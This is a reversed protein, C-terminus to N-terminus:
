APGRAAAVVATFPVELAAALRYLSTRAPRNHGHVWRSITAETAGVRQAVDASRLGLARKRALILDGLATTPNKRPLVAVLAAHEIQLVQALRRVHSPGPVRYGLEWSVVTNQVVGLQEAVAARTLRLTERRAGVFQGLAPWGSTDVVFPSECLAAVAPEAVGLFSALRGFFVVGPTSRGTEWGAFTAQSVDLLEAAVVQTIGRADRELRLSRAFPPLDPGAHDARSWDSTELALVAILRSLRDVSPQVAGKEWLRITEESVRLQLALDVRRLGARHRSAAVHAGLRASWAIEETVIEEDAIRAL